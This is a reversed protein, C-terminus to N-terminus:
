IKPYQKEMVINERQKQKWIKRILKLPRKKKKATSTDQITEPNKKKCKNFVSKYIRSTSATWPQNEYQSHLKMTIYSCKIQGSIMQM